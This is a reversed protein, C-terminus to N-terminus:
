GITVEWWNEMAIAEQGSASFDSDVMRRWQESM